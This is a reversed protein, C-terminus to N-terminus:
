AYAGPLRVLCKVLHKEREKRYVGDGERSGEGNTNGEITELYDRKDEYVIGIHSFEFIVLDGPLAIADRALIEWGQQRAWKEWGYADAGLYVIGEDTGTEACAQKIVWCVFAACWAYGKQNSEEPMWTARMYELITPGQNDEEERVGVQSDAIRIMASQLASM